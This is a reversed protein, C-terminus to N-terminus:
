RRPGDDGREELGAQIARLAALAADREAETIPGDGFRAREFVAVLSAVPPVPLSLAQLGDRVFERATQWPQPRCHRRAIEDEFRRYCAVIAARPDGEKALEDIAAAVASASNPLAADLRALSEGIRVAPLLRIQALLLLALGLGAVSALLLAATVIADAVPLHVADSLLEAPHSGPLASPSSGAIPADGRWTLWIVLAATGALLPIAALLAALFSPQSVHRKGPRRPLSLATAVLALLLATAALFAVGSLWDPLNLAFRRGPAEPLPGESPWTAALGVVMGVAVLAVPALISRQSSGARM